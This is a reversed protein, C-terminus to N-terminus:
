CLALALAVNGFHDIWAVETQVSVWGDTEQATTVVPMDLPVLWAPDIPQGLQEAPVGRCLAAVAPAFLDRGDFTASVSGAPVALEVAQAVGGCREAADLILGNDPGVFYGPRNPDRTKLVVGRRPSGVGPDIVALVVGRGLFPVSRELMRAGARIDFAPVHHSLDIVTAAPAGSTIVAHVVGVFEDVLGYDSLFFVTDPPSVM